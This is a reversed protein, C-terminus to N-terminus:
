RRVTPLYLRESGPAPATPVITPTPTPAPILPKPLFDEEKLGTIEMIWGLYAGVDTYAGYLNPRACGFGFSTVGRLIAFDDLIQFLPGGSDGQCSDKGGQPYGACLIGEPLIFGYGYQCVDRSAFPLGVVQLALPLNPNNEGLRGWGSATLVDTTTLQASGSIIGITQIQPTFTLPTTFHILAIDFGTRHSTYKSHTFVDTMQVTQTKAEFSGWRSNTGAQVSVYKAGELCHAATIVWEKNILSGGCLYRNTSILVQWPVEGLLADRGGVILDTALVSVTTALFIVVAILYRRVKTMFKEKNLQFHEIHWNPM